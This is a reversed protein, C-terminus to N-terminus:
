LPWKIFSEATALLTNLVIMDVYVSCIIKRGM